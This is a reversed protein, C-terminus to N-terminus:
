DNSCSNALKLLFMVKDWDSTKFDFESMLIKAVKKLMKLEDDDKDKLVDIKEKIKEDNLIEKFQQASYKNLYM